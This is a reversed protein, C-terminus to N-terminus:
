CLACPLSSPLGIHSRQWNMRLILREQGPINQSLGSLHEISTGHRANVTGLLIDFAERQLENLWSTTPQIRPVQSISSQQQEMSRNWSLKSDRWCLLCDKLKKLCFKLRRLRDSTYVQCSLYRHRIPWKNKLLKLWCLKKVRLLKLRQQIKFSHPEGKPLDKRYGRLGQSM